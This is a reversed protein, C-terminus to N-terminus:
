FHTRFTLGYTRPEGVAVQTLGWTANVTSTVLYNKDLLNRAWVSVDWPGDAARIGLQAGVLAYGRIRTFPDDNVASYFSSRYSSDAATYGVLRDSLATEYRAQIAGAWRSVGSLPRGSIDCSTQYSQLFPCIANTYRLYKADTFAGSANLTLGQAVNARLDVEVGQSRVKGANGIYSIRNSVDYLNAQYNRDVTLFLATNFQVRRRFLQTKLGLEYSDVTEPNVFNNLGVSRRVLNIGASKYGRSYTAYAHVNEGFDQNASALWSVTGQSREV